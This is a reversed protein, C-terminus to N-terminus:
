HMVLMSPQALRQGVLVPGFSVLLGGMRSQQPGSARLTTPVPPPRGRAPPPQGSPWADGGLLWGM